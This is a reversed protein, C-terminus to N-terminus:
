EEPPPKEEKPLTAGFQSTKRSEGRPKQGYVVESTSEDFSPMQQRIQPTIGEASDVFRNAARLVDLAKGEFYANRQQVIELPVKFLM